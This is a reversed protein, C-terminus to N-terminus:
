SHFRYQQVIILTSLNAVHEDGPV